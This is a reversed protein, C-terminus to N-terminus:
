SNMTWSMPEGTLDTDSSGSSSQGSTNGVSTPLPVHKPNIIIHVSQSQNGLDPSPAVEFAKGAEKMKEELRRICEASHSSGFVGCKTCVVM